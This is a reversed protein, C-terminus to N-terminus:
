DDIANRLALVASTDGDVSIDRSFFLADGDIEGHMMGLFASMPGAITADCEPVLRRRLARI